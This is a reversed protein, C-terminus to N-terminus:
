GCDRRPWCGKKQLLCVPQRMCCPYLCRSTHTNFIPMAEWKPDRFPNERTLNQVSYSTFHSGVVLRLVCPNGRNCAEQNQRHCLPFHRPIVRSLSTSVRTSHRPFRLVAHLVPSAHGSCPGQQTVDGEQPNRRTRIGSLNESRIATLLEACHAPLSFVHHLVTKQNQCQQRHWRECLLFWLRYWWRGDYVIVHTLQLPM